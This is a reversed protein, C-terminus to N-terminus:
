GHARRAWRWAEDVLGHLVEDAVGSPVEGHNDSLIFGGGPAGVALADRAHARAEDVTWRTLRVGNLNGVLAARGACRRKLEALDEEASASVVRAGAGLVADLRPLIRGSAFHLAVPGPLAPVLQAALRLGLETGLEETTLTSSSLPDFYVVATAGADFQARAWSATFAANLALLRDRQAARPGGPEELAAHLLDLWPGLGLQMAPLSFPSIVVSIIPVEGRSRERLGTIVRLVRQLSPHELSPPAECRAIAEPTRFVPAGATPPAHEDFSAEGGWAELELAAYQFAYLCDHGFTAQLRLQAEVLAREDRFYAPLPLGVVRAGHTTFLLFVPPRDGERFSLAAVTRELPTM